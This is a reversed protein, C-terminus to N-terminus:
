LISRHGTCLWFTFYKLTLLHVVHAEILHFYVGSRGYPFPVPSMYQYRGYGEMKSKAFAQGIGWLKRLIVVIEPKGEFRVYILIVVHTTDTLSIYNRKLKNVIRTAIGPAVKRSVGMRKM